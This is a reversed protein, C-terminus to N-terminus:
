PRKRIWQQILSAQAPQHSQAATQAQKTQKLFPLRQKIIMLMGTISVILYILLTIFTKLDFVQLLAEIPIICGCAFLQWVWHFSGALAEKVIGRLVKKSTQKSFVSGTAKYFRYLTTGVVLCSAVVLVVLHIVNSFFLPAIALMGLTWLTALWAFPAKAAMGSPRESIPYRKQLDRFAQGIGWMFGPRKEPDREMMQAILAQVEQPIDCDAPMGDMQIELPEKGTLLTQLTAGLGYMDTRQTSQERGYQEPAAYGPSGLPGTYRTQGERYRRAIGFDILYVIGSRALMVNAPKVDRFIVPPEQVHLYGLVDCLQAGIHVVGAISLRGDHAKGLTQGDIYQMVIYWHEPDTFHGYMLPLNKHRLGPLITIERNYSDTAEIMERASLAALTIQKIAVIRGGTNDWAKYVVGFGGEGVKEQIQYRQMLLYGPKLEAIQSLHQLAPPQQVEGCIPCCSAQPSSAAGCTECFLSSTM